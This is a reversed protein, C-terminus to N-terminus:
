SCHWATGDCYCLASGYSCNLSSNCSSGVAPAASPCAQQCHWQGGFCTCTEDSYSCPNTETPVCASGNAPSTPPCSCNLEFGPDGSQFPASCTCSQGLAPYSCAYYGACAPPSFNDPSLAPPCSLPTCSWSGGRCACQQDAYACSIATNGCGQLTSPASAPCVGCSWAPHSPYAPDPVCDCTVNGYGCSFPTPTYGDMMISPCDSGTAPQASPCPQCSWNGNSCTCTQTAYPCTFGQISCAGTPADAPCRVLAGGGDDDAGADIPATPTGADYGPLNPICSQIWEHLVSFDSVSPHPLPAGITSPPPMDGVVAVRHYILSHEPDGARVYVWGPYASSAKVNSLAHYDAIGHLNGIAGAAHCVSCNAKLIQQAQACTAACSPNPLNSPDCVTLPEDPPAAADPKTTSSLVGLGCGSVLLACVGLAASVVVMSRMTKTM